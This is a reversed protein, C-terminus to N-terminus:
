GSGASGAATRGAGAGAEPRIVADVLEREDAPVVQWDGDSDLDGKTQPLVQLDGHGRAVRYHLHFVGGDGPVLEVPIEGDPSNPDLAFARELLNPIGDGDPDALDAGDGSGDVPLDNELLWVERPTNAALLYFGDAEALLRAEAFAGLNDFDLGPVTGAYSQDTLFLRVKAPEAMDGALVRVTSGAAFSVSGFGFAADETPVIELSGGSAVQLLGGWRGHGRLVTEGAVTLLGGNASLDAGDFVLSGRALDIDGLFAHSEEDLHLQGAGSKVLGGAGSLGGSLRVTNEGAVHISANEALVVPSTIVADNGDSGPEYRLAGLVGLGEGEGVGSRGSGALSLAGGFTHIRAGNEDNASTLRLQGGPLVSLAVASSPSSPQTLALVGQEVVVEGEFLKGGGTLSVVGAGKKILGGPGSWGERLRLAGFEPNGETNAVTIELDTALITGAVNELEVYGAGAGGIHLGAPDDGGDFTLTSGEDRDRLRHRTAGVGADIRLHGITVPAWLNVNRDAVPAPIRAGAGEADPYDPSTWNAEATWDGNGTPLFVPVESLSISPSQASPGDEVSAELVFAGEGDTVVLDDFVAVGNQATVTVTGGLTGDGALALTVSGNFGAVTFGGADVVRVTVPGLPQGTQAWVIGDADVVLGAVQQAAPTAVTINDLRLQARAGSAGSVFYYRWLLQVYPQGMAEPPLEVPGIDLTHGGTANRVYEVPQGEANTVDAFEGESGVRYQLRIAYIRVNPTVTGATFSVVAEGVDATDIAVLAAGVDRGRGTNIFAIGNEGLGNIRTRSSAAYPFQSGGPRGVAVPDPLCARTDRAPDDGRRSVDHSGTM